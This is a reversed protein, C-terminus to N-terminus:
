LGHVVSNTQCPKLTAAISTSRNALENERGSLLIVTFCELDDRRTKSRLCLCAIFSNNNPKNANVRLFSFLTQQKLKKIRIKCRSSVPVM